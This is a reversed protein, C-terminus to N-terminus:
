IDSAANLEVNASLGDILLRGPRLSHGFAVRPTYTLEAGLIFVFDTAITIGTVAGVKVNFAVAITDQAFTHQANVGTALPGVQGYRSWYLARAAAAAKTSAGPLVSLATAGQAVAAGQVIPTHLTDFRATGNAVAYNSTWLYRILLKHRNDFDTPTWIWDLEDTVAQMRLAGINSTGLEILVPTGSGFGADLGTAATNAQLFTSAPVFVKKQIYDINANKIENRDAM